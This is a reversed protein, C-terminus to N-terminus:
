GQRKFVRYAIWEGNKIFEIINDMEKKEEDNEKLAYYFLLFFILISGVTCFCCCFQSKMKRTAKEETFWLNHNTEIFRIKINM